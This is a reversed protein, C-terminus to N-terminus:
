MLAAVTAAFVAASATLAAASDCGYMMCEMDRMQQEWERGERDMHPLDYREGTNKDTRGGKEMGTADWTSGLGFDASTTAEAAADWDNTWDGEQAHALVALAAIAIYTRM